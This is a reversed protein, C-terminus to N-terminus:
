GRLLVWVLAAAFTLQGVGFAVGLNAAGALQAVVTGAAFAGLVIALQAPLGAPAAPINM